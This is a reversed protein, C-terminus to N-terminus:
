IPDHLSSFCQSWHIGHVFNKFQLSTPTCGIVTTTRPWFLGSKNQDPVWLLYTNDPLMIWNGDLSLIKVLYMMPIVFFPEISDSMTINGDESYIHSTIPSHLLITHLPFVLSSIAKSLIWSVIVQRLMGCMAKSLIWSVRVQRLMGSELQRTMLDLSLTGAMLHFHLQLLVATM